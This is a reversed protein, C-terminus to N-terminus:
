RDLYQIYRVSMNKKDEFWVLEGLPTLHISGKCQLGKHEKMYRILCQEFNLNNPPVELDQIESLTITFETPKIM